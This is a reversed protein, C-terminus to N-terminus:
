EAVGCRSRRTINLCSHLCQERQLANGRGRGSGQERTRDSVSRNANRKGFILVLTVNTVQVFNLKGAPM